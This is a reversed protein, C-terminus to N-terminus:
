RPSGHAPTVGSGPSDASRRAGTTATEWTQSQPSARLATVRHVAADNSSNTVYDGGYFSEWLVTSGDGSSSVMSDQRPNAIVSAIGTVPDYRRMPVWGSGAFRSTIYSAGDGAFAVAFTGSENAAANFTALTDQGTTLDVVHVWVLSNTTRADAIVLKNGDPSLDLGMLSGSLVFPPLFSDSALQYRLLTSNTSTIYLIDRGADYVMDTRNPASILTGVADARLPALILLSICCLLRVLTKM